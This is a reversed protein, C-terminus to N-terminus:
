PAPQCKSCVHTGRQGVVIREIPTGCRRCPEGVRGYVQLFEQYTGPPYVQDFSTGQHQIAQRLTSQIALHLREVEDSTLTDATRLPHLGAVHLVEDAYINGLGALFAQNLLLPKLRGRRNTLLATFQEVTFDKDLPEPGLKDLVDDPSGVLYVRGFKRPDHFRLEDGGALMFVVHTHPDPPSSAPKIHLRGSMKLHILLTDGSSLRFLLYKGRRGVSEIIQDTLRRALEDVSPAGVQNPWGVHVATIRRGALIQNLDRKYNEVEPLEPM